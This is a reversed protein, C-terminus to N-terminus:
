ARDPPQGGRSLMSKERHQVSRDGGGQGRERASSAGDVLGRDSRVDVEQGRVPDVADEHEAGCAFADEEVEVLPALDELEEHFCRACTELDGRMAARLGGVVGRHEGLMRREDARVRDGHDCRRVEREIRVLEELVESRCGCRACRKGEVDVLESRSATVRNRELHDCSQAVLRRIEGAELDRVSRPLLELRVEDLPEVDEDPGLRENRLTDAPARDTGHRTKCAAERVRDNREDPLRRRLRSRAGAGQARRQLTKREVGRRLHHEPQATNGHSACYARRKAAQAVCSRLSTSRMTASHCAYDDRSRARDAGADRVVKREGAGVVDDDGFAALEAAARGRARHAAHALLERGGGLDHERALADLEERREARPEELLDAIEEDRRGLVTERAELFPALQLVAEANRDLTDICGDDCAEGRTVNEARRAAPEVTDRIWRGDRALQQAARGLEADLDALM